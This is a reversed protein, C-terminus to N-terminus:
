GVFANKYSPEFVYDPVSIDTKVKIERALINGEVALKAQPKTTGIGVNGNGAIRMKESASSYFVLGTYNSHLDEAMAVVAAWKNTDTSYGTLLKIGNYEGAATATAKSSILWGNINGDISLKSTPTTTGIGVNGATPFTNNQSYVAMATLSFIISLLLKM